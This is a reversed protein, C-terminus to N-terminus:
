SAPEQMLRDAVRDLVPTGPAAHVAEWLAQLEDAAVTLDRRLLTARRHLALASSPARAALMAPANTHM